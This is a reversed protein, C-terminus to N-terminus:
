SIISLIGQFLQIFMSQVAYGLGFIISGLPSSWLLLIFVIFITGAHRQAFDELSTHFASLVAFGDLMPVPLLNFVFLMGNVAGGVFLFSVAIDAGAVRAIVTLLSFILCLLLNTLPGALSIMARARPSRVNSLNVPVAGWAIGFLGLMILSRGGMQVLPNLSLHGNQAATNDGVRLAVAAHAYEHCCISFAALFVWSIYYTPHVSLQQIFM